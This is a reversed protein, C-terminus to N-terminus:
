YEVEWGVKIHFGIGFHLNLDILNFSYSNESFSGVIPLDISNSKETSPCFKLDVLDGPTHEFGPHKDIDYPYEHTFSKTIGIGANISGSGSINSYM